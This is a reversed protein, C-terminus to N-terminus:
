VIGAYDEKQLTNKLIKKIEERGNGTKLFSERKRADNEYIFAESFILKLPRRNKTSKNGGSNHKEIRKSLNKTYGIYLKKDKQSILIYIYYFNM